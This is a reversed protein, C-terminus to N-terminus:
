FPETSNPKGEIRFLYIAQGSLKILFLTVNYFKAFTDIKLISSSDTLSTGYTLTCFYGYSDFIRRLFKGFLTILCSSWHLCKEVYQKHLDM